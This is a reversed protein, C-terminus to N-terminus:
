TNNAPKHMKILMIAHPLLLVIAVNKSIRAGFTESTPIKFRGLKEGAYIIMYVCNVDM